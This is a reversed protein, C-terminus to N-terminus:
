KRSTKRFEAPSFGTSKRFLEAFRSQNQYGVVQSIQRITLDTCTLLHEAQSMRRQQIYETSTCGHVQRFTKKLKTTGMCAIKALREMPLTSACHDNIYATVNDIRMQDERTIYRDPWAQQTRHRAVVLSVAEAVKSEYFLNAAIGEGRYDRVQRLLRVMDPFDETQDVFRFAEAPNVYENPYQERLYGEYYAPTIEIGICTIPINKHILVRYPEEGGLFTKVCGASLRRYPALEEGSISQYWTISLCEPFRFELFSDEYFFFDHIKINFLDKQAYTWFYGTGSDGTQRWCLGMPGYRRNEPEPIFGHRLMIPRYIEDIMDAM